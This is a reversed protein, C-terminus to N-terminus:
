PCYRRIIKGTAGAILAMSVAGPDPTGISKEAHPRARGIKPTLNRTAEASQAAIEAAATWAETTSLGQAASQTLTASFPYLVDVLTKDNLQAKGLSVIAELAATVGTALMAADPKAEDGLANGLNRLIVGWLMGSTGGARDSWADGAVTLMTGAGAQADLAARAAEVAATLGRQMGIGHDGDGAIADLRGLAEQQSEIADRAAELAILVVKAAARSDASGTKLPQKDHVSQVAVAINEESQAEQAINGRHFAPTDAAAIWTQELEDNLWFLTLSVGAMDFSTILEDVVPEIIILGHKSLLQDIKRYIVFLEEYKVAGLGNLILGVRAGSFSGISLPTEALLKKVLMEALGDASPADVRYLGPEGHIGMGVEMKGSAVEFLPKNAGPLTCGSFAVGLSRVRDKAATAIRAVEDLPKGADAAVAAAKFVPLTGAIGRRKHQEAFAASAIDDTVVVSRVDIGQTRLQAQAHEFNLVDGAYNAYCFLIGGGADVAQAVQCIQQASPAAFVNGLAAGHALGQGVFGGFAPYHGSGGGIIMVVQGPKTKHRRIVGGNVRQITNRHAAAFGEVLEDAFQAPNNFLYTM